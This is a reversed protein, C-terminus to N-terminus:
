FSQFGKDLSFQLYPEKHNMDDYTVLKKQMKSQQERNESRERKNMSGKQDFNFQEIKISNAGQTVM